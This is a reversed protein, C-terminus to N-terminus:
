GAIEPSHPFGVHIFLTSVSALMGGIISFPAFHYLPMPVAPLLPVFINARAPLTLFVPSTSTGMRVVMLSIIKSMPPPMARLLFQLAACIPPGDPPQIGTSYRSVGM